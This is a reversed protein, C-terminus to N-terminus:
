GGAGRDLRDIVYRAAAKAGDEDALRAQVAAAAEHYASGELLLRLNAAAGAATYRRPALVRAVNLRRARDANDIQDAFFPVVLEPRGSRLAQALTGIGGHHVVAAARPFLLSHPAYACVHVDDGLLGPTAGTAADGALLVARRGLTRAAAVSEVYFSGPDNVILSGLTFM